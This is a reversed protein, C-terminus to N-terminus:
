QPDNQTFFLCAGFAASPHPPPIEGFPAHVSRLHLDRSVHQAQTWVHNAVVLSTGDLLAVVGCLELCATHARQWAEHWRSGGALERAEKLLCLVRSTPTWAEHKCARLMGGLEIAEDLAEFMTPVITLLTERGRDLGQGM